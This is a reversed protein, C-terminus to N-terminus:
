GATGMPSRQVSLKWSASYVGSKRRLSTSSQLQFVVQDEAKVAM